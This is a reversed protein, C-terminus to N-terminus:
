AILTLIKGFRILEGVSEEDHKKDYRYLIIAKGNSEIHFYPNAEIKRILGRHFFDRIKEEDPGKLVFQDSFVPFEEFDIDEREIMDAMKEFFGEKNLIFIPLDGPPKILLAALKSDASPTDLSQDYIVESYIVRVGEYTGSIINQAHVIKSNRSFDFGAFDKFSITKNPFFRWDNKDAIKKLSQQHSSLEIETEINADGRIITALPHDSVPILHEMNEFKLEKGEEEWEKQLEDLHTRFTHDIINVHTCDLVLHGLDRHKEIESKLSIYNSFIASHQLYIVAHDKDRTTKYDFRSKFLFKLPAGYYLHILLQMVIGALVGIILDTALVTILTTLFILLQEKGIEYVHKFESPSSLRYGVHILMAALAALPIQEILPKGLLLFLLLFGGHFFNAWQTKAGNGINATSRVIESIMPLGGISGSIATGAGMASVDRNLNSKRHYPDLTDIASASLLSELSSV